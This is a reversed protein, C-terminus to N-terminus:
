IINACSCSAFLRVFTLATKIAKIKKRLRLDNIARNGCKLKTKTNTTKENKAAKLNM